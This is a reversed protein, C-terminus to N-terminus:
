RSKGNNFRVTVVGNKLRRIVKTWTGTRKGGVTEMGLGLRTKNGHDALQESLFFFGVNGNVCVATFQDLITM